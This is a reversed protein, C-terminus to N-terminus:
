IGHSQVAPEHKGLERAVRVAPACRLASEPLRHALYNRVHFFIVDRDGKLGVWSVEDLVGVLGHLEERRECDRVDLVVVTDCVSENKPVSGLLYEVISLVHDGVSVERVRNVGPSYEETRSVLGLDSGM